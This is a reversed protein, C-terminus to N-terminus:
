SSILLPSFTAKRGVMSLTDYAPSGGTDFQMLVAFHTLHNCTCETHSKDMSKVHCGQGSWDTPSYFLKYLKTISPPRSLDLMGLIHKSFDGMTLSRASNLRLDRM